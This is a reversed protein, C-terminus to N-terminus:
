RHELKPSHHTQMENTTRRADSVLRSQWCNLRHIKCRESGLAPLNRRTGVHGTLANVLCTLYPKECNRQKANGLLLCIMVISSPCVPTRAVHAKTVESFNSQEPFGFQRNQDANFSSLIPLTRGRPLRSPGADHSPPRFRSQFSRAGRNLFM